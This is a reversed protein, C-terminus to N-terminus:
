QNDQKESNPLGATAVVEGSLRVLVVAGLTTVTLPALSAAWEVASFGQRHTAHFTLHPVAFALWAWGLTRLAGADGKTCAWGSFIMLSVYLGGLRSRSSVGSIGQRWTKPNQPADPRGAPPLSHVACGLTLGDQPDGAARTPTPDQWAYTRDRTDGKM